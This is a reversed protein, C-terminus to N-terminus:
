FSETHITTRVEFFMDGGGEVVTAFFTALFFRGVNYCNRSNLCKIQLIVKSITPHIEYSGANYSTPFTTIMIFYNKHM